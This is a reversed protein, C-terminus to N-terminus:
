DCRSREGSRFRWGCHMEVADTYQKHKYWLLNGGQDIAYIVGNGASFVHRFNQWGTGVVRPGTLDPDRRRQTRVGYATDHRYWLLNGEQNVAYITNKGGHFVHKFGGWGAPWGADRRAM